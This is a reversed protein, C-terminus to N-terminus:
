TLLLSFQLIVYRVSGVGSEARAMVRLGATWSKGADQSMKGERQEGGVGIQRRRKGVACWARLMGVLVKLALCWEGKWLLFLNVAVQADLPVVGDLFLRQQHLNVASLNSM